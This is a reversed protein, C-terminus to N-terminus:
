CLSIEDLVYHKHGNSSQVQNPQKTRSKEKCIVRKLLYKREETVTKIRQHLRAIEDCIATNQYALFYIVKRLMYFKQEYRAEMARRCKASQRRCPAKKAPKENVNTCCQCTTHNTSFHLVVRRRDELWSVRALSNRTCRGFALRIRARLSVSSDSSNFITYIFRFKELSIM